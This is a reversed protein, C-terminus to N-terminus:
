DIRGFSTKPITQQLLQLTPNLRNQKVVFLRRDAKDFAEVMRKGDQWHTAMPKETVVHRGAEACRIAESPHLGSPTCLAILEADSRKLLDGLDEFASAATADAARERAIPDPDCVATVDIRDAHHEAAEFHRRAIRGCGVIALKLRRDAPIIPVVSFEQIGHREARYPTKCM